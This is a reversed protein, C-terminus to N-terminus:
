IVKEANRKSRREAIIRAKESDSKGLTAFWDGLREFFSDKAVEQYASEVQMATDEAHIVSPAATFLFALLFFVSFFKKM